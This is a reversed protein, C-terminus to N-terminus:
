VVIFKSCTNRVADQSGALIPEDEKPVPTYCFYGNWDLFPSILGSIKKDFAMFYSQPFLCVPMEDDDMRALDDIIKKTSPKKSLIQKM